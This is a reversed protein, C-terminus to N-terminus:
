RPKLAETCFDMPKSLLAALPPFLRVAEEYDALAVAYWAEAGVNGRAALLRGRIERAAGRCRWALGQSPNLRIGEDADGIAADLLPMPDEGRGAMVFKARLLQTEARHTWSDARRPNRRIAESLDELASEYPARPDRNGLFERIAWCRRAVGRWMWAEDRAPNRRIAEGLDGLAREYSDTPDSLRTTQVIGKVIFAAGRWMWASEPAGPGDIVANLDDIAGGALSRADGWAPVMAACLGWLARAVGRWLRARAPHSNEALAEDFERISEAIRDGPDVGSRARHFAWALHVIGLSVRAGRDKGLLVAFDAVAAAFEEEASGGRNSLEVARLFRASARTRVGHLDGPERELAKTSWLIAAEHRRQDMEVLALEEWAEAETLLRRAEAADGNLWALLGLASPQEPLARLHSRLRERLERTGAAVDVEDRWNEELIENMQRGLLRATEVARERLEAAPRERRVAVCAAAFALVAGVVALARGWRWSRRAKLPKGRRYRALEQVWERASPYRDAPDKATSKLVIGKLGPDVEGTLVEQLMVGLAYVDARADVGGPKGQRQEPAMYAPTGIVVGSTTLRTELEDAKAAGFDTLVPRGSPEVIVNSPKLDRHVVGMRHACAVARGVDELIRLLEDRPTGEAIVRSLTRGELYEMAIYHQQRGLADRAAGFELIRVIHPHQLKAGITAERRFREVAVSSPPDQPKLVKLAVRRQLMSDRAEYVIGMGGRGLERVIRYQGLVFRPAAAPAGVERDGLIELYQEVTLDGRKLLLAGISLSLGRRQLREHHRRCENLQGLTLYGKAM